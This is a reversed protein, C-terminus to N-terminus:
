PSSVLKMTEIDLMEAAWGPLINSKFLEVTIRAVELDIEAQAERKKLLTEYPNFWEREAGKAGGM